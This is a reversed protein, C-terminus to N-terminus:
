SIPNRDKLLKYWEFMIIVKDRYLSLDIEDYITTLSQLNYIGVLNALEVKEVDDLYFSTTAFVAECDTFLELTSCDM